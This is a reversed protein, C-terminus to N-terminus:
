TKARGAGPLRDPSTGMLDALAQNLNQPDMFLVKSNNSEGIKQSADMYRQAVLFKIVEQFVPTHQDLQEIGQERMTETIIRIASAIGKAEEEAARQRGEAERVAADRKGRAVEMAAERENEAAKAKAMSSKVDDPLIIDKIEVRTVKVGWNATAEDLERLLANNMEDRVTLIDQLVRKGIENRLTTLVTSEVALKIDDVGYHVLYLDVIKWYVLGDAQLPVNDATIAEQSPVDLIQERTTDVVISDVMPITFNLGPQLTRRYRGLREVLAVDGQNIIKVSGSVYGVIALMAALAPALFADM